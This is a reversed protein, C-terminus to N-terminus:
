VLVSSHKCRSSFRLVDMVERGSKKKKAGFKLAPGLVEELSGSAYYPYDEPAM